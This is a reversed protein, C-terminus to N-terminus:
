LSLVAYVLTNGIFSVPPILFPSVPYTADCGLEAILWRLSKPCAVDTGHSGLAKGNSFGRLDRRLRVVSQAIFLQCYYVIYEQSVSMVARVM